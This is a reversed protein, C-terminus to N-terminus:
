IAVAHVELIYLFPWCSILNHYTNYPRSIVIHATHASRWQKQTSTHCHQNHVNEQHVFVICYYVTKNHKCGSDRGIHWLCASTDICTKTHIHTHHTYLTNNGSTAAATAVCMENMGHVTLANNGHANTCKEMDYNTENKKTKWEWKMATIRHYTSRIGHGISLCDHLANKKKGRINVM